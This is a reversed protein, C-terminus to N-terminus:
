GRPLQSQVASSLLSKPISVGSRTNVKWAASWIADFAPAGVKKRLEAVKHVPIEPKIACKSILDAYFEAPYPPEKALADKWTTQFADWDDQDLQRMLIYTRSAAYAKQAAALEGVVVAATRGEELDADIVPLPKGYTDTLSDLEANLEEIQAELDPRTYWAAQTQALRIDAALFEDLNLVNDVISARAGGPISVVAVPGPDVPPLDLDAGLPHDTM